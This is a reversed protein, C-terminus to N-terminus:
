ILVLVLMNGSKEHNFCGPETRAIVWEVNGFRFKRWNILSRQEFDDFATYKRTTQTWVSLLYASACQLFSHPGVGYLSFKQIWKFKVNVCAPNEQTDNTLHASENKLKTQCAIAKMNIIFIGVFAIFVREVMKKQEDVAWKIAASQSNGLASVVISTNKSRKNSLQITQDSPHNTSWCNITQEVNLFHSFNGPFICWLQKRGRIEVLM